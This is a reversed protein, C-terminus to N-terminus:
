SQSLLQTQQRISNLIAEAIRRKEGWDILEGARHPTVQVRTNDGAPVVVISVERGDSCQLSWRTRCRIIGAERDSHLVSYGLEAVARSVANFTRQSDVAFDEIYTKTM